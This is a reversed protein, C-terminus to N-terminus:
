RFIGGAASKPIHEGNIYLEDEPSISITEFTAKLDDLDAMYEWNKCKGFAVVTYTDDEKSYFIHTEGFEQQHKRFISINPCNKIMKNKIKD